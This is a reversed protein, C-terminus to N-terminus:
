ICMKWTELLDNEGKNLQFFEGYRLFLSCADTGKLFISTFNNV